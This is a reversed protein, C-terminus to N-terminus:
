WGMGYYAEKGDQYKGKILVGEGSSNSLLARLENVDKVPRNNISTILFGDKIGADKWKGVGIKEIIVGGNVDYEEIEDKTANRLSAGETAYADDKKVIKIQNDLNKLKASVTKTKGDRKYTVSIKDGPRHRAVLDQLQAVDAVETNNIKLIIDGKKLGAEEAASNENVVNIYVGTLDDLDEELRPDNVNVIEIGLLARQVMGYEILDDVVKKVLSVPVAFSYGAYAGTTSAIASNIGILEGRLNVLAGGSNGPNVAADTQIFSEIGYRERLIGINRGKASVIGATVTSTLEYPNGVALVWEGVKVIDSNGFNIFPLGKEDIKIVAIDTNPDTGVLTANYTRNDHLTVEMEDADAIVHNNTVIYGNDSIIVGSGASQDPRQQGRRERPDGFFDRFMDDYPSRHPNNSATPSMTSKIHVVRPTAIEAAYVFNLGAPVIFSSDNLYSSFQVNNNLPSQIFSPTEKEFLKYGGLAVIGGFLSAFLLGVMLQRRNM